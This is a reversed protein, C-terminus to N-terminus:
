LCKGPIGNVTCLTACCKIDSWRCADGNCQVACSDGDCRTDPCADKQTCAIDTQASTSRVRECSAKGVCEVRCASASGCDALKCAKEGTCTIRCAIGPPCTVGTTCSALGPCALVCTGAECTGGEPCAAVCAAQAPDDPPAVAGDVTNAEPSGDQSLVAEDGAEALDGATTLNPESICGGGWAVCALIAAIAAGARLRPRAFPRESM